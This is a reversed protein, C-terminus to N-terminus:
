FELPELSFRFQAKVLKAFFKIIKKGVNHVKEKQQGPHAESKKGTIM